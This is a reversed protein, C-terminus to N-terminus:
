YLKEIVKNIVEIIEKRKHLVYNMDRMETHSVPNREPTMFICADKIVKLTDTTFHTFLVNRFERVDAEKPEKSFDELIKAWKGMSISLHKMLDIFKDRCDKSFTRRKYKELLPSFHISVQQHLMTELAKGYEVLIMSSDPPPNGGLYDFILKDASRLMDRVDEDTIRDILFASGQVRKMLSLEQMYQEISEDYNELIEAIDIAKQMFKVARGLDIMSFYTQAINRYCRHFNKDLEVAKNFNDLALEYQDKDFYFTGINNHYKAKLDTDQILPLEKNFLEIAFDSFGFDALILGINFIMNWKDDYEQKELYSIFEQFKDMGYSSIMDLIWNKFYSNYYSGNERFGICIDQLLNAVQEKEDLFYKCLFVYLKSEFDENIAIANEFYNKANRWDYLRLYSFGINKLIRFRLQKDSLNELIELAQTFFEISEKFNFCKHSQEGLHILDEAEMINEIEMLKQTDMETKEFAITRDEIYDLQSEETYDGLISLAEILSNRESEFKYIMRYIISLNYFLNFKEKRSSMDKAIALVKLFTEQQKEEQELYYHCSGIYMLCIAKQFGLSFSNKILKQFIESKEIIPPISISSRSLYKYANQFAELALDYNKLNNHVKGILIYFTAKLEDEVNKFETNFFQNAVELALKYYRHHDLESILTRWNSIDLKNSSKFVLNVLNKIGFDTNLLSLKEELSLTNFYRLSAISLFNNILPSYYLITDYSKELDFTNFILDIFKEKIKWGLLDSLEVLHRKVDFFQFYRRYNKLNLVAHSNMISDFKRPSKTGSSTLSISFYPEILFTNSTRQLLETDVILTKDLERAQFYEERKNKLFLLDYINNKTMIEKIIDSTYSEYFPENRPVGKAILAEIEEKEIIAESLLKMLESLIEKYFKPNEIIKSYILNRFGMNVQRKLLFPNELGLHKAILEKEDESANKIRERLELRYNIKWILWMFHIKLEKANQEGVKMASKKRRLM